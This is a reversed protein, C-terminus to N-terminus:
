RQRRWSATGMACWRESWFGRLSPDDDVIIVTRGAVTM